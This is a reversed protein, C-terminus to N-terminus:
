EYITVEVTSTLVDSYTYSVRRSYAESGNPVKIVFINPHTEELIGQKTVIRRRGKDAKVMVPKGVSDELDKRIRTVSGM